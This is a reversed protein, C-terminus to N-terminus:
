ADVLVGSRSHSEGTRRGLWNAQGDSRCYRLFGDRASTTALWIANLRGPVAACGTLICVTLRLLWHPATLLRM